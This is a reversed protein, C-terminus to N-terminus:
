KMRQVETTGRHYLLAPQSAQKENLERVTQFEHSADAERGLKRYANGLYFHAPHYDPRLQVARELTKAADQLRDERLLVKGLLAYSASFNPALQLSRRILPEIEAGAAKERDKAAALYYYGRYDSPNTEIYKKS